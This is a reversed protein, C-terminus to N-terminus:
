PSPPRPPPRPARRTSSSRPGTSHRRWPSAPPSGRSGRSASSTTWAWPARWSAACTSPRTARSARCTCSARASYDTTVVAPGGLNPQHMLPVTVSTGDLRTFPADETSDEGFPAAGGAKLYVTNVLVMMTGPGISGAPLLAPILDETRDAVWGNIGERSAESERQLPLPEIGAGFWRGLLEDYGEVTEFSEDPFQRNALRVVPGDESSVAQELANFAGWREEGAVPYAFLQELADATDGSAGADAMGFAVGISLPSVVM